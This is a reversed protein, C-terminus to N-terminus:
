WTPAPWWAVSSRAPPRAACTSPWAASTPTTSRSCATPTPRRRSTPRTSRCGASCASTSPRSWASSTPASTPSCSPATPAPGSGPSTASASARSPASSAYRGAPEAPPPLPAREVWAEGDHAGAEPAARRLGWWPQDVHFGPGPLTRGDPDTAFFGRSRLQEDGPLQDMRYVPSVCLRARQGALFLEDASQEAMWESLYLEILDANERRQATTAFVDLTAWEPSGMLEVLSRWQADEVCIFQLLGDRCQYISWPVVNRVGVRSANEGLFSATVPATETMRAAAALSSFDVHDGVGSRRARDVAALFATAAVTATLLTAHHGPAKLPPQDLDTAAGPSLFGM